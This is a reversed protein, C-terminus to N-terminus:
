QREEIAAKESWAMKALLGTSDEIKIRLLERVAGRVYRNQRSRVLRSLGCCGVLKTYMVRLTM